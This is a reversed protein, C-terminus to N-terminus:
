IRVGVLFTVAIEYRAHDRISTDQSDAAKEVYTVKELYGTRTDGDYVLTVEGGAIAAGEFISVLDDKVQKDTKSATGALYGKIVIQHTVRLLDVIKNDTPGTAQNQGTVAGTILFLKNTYNEAINTAYIIVSTGGKSITIESVM